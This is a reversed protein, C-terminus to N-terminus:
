LVDQGVDQGHVRPKADALRVGGGRRARLGM